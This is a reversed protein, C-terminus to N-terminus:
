SGVAAFTVMTVAVMAAQMDRIAARVSKAAWQGNAVEAMRAAVLKRQSDPFALAHLKASHILAILGATRTDPEAGDLM